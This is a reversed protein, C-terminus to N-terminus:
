QITQLALRDAISVEFFVVSSIPLAQAELALRAQEKEVKFGLVAVHVKKKVQLFRLVPTGLRNVSRPKQLM